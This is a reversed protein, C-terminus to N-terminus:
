AGRGDLDARGAAGVFVFPVGHPREAKSKIMDEAWAPDCLVAWCKWRRALRSCESWTGNGMAYCTEIAALDRWPGPIMVGM